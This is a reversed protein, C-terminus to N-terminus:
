FLHALISYFIIGNPGAGNGNAKVRDPHVGQHVAPLSQESEDSDESNDLAVGGDEDSGNSDEDNSDAQAQMTAEEVIPGNAKAAQAKPTKANRKGISGNVGLKEIKKPLPVGLAGAILRRAVADTKEPRINGNREVRPKLSQVSDVKPKKSGKSPGEKTTEAKRKAGAM